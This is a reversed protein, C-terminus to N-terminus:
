LRKRMILTEQTIGYTIFGFKSYLERAPINSKKVELVLEDLGLFRKCIDLANILASEMYGKHKYKDDVMMRGITAVGGYNFDYVSIFGVKDGEFTKIVLNLDGDESSLKFWALTQTIDVIKDNIFWEHNQNRLAALWVLHKIGLVEFHSKM